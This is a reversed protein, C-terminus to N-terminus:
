PRTAAIAANRCAYNVQRSMSMRLWLPLGDALSRGGCGNQSSDPALGSLTDLHFSCMGSSMSSACMPGSGTWTRTRTGHAHRASLATHACKHMRPAHTRQSSAHTWVQGHGGFYTHSMKNQARGALSGTAYFAGGPSESLGHPYSTSLGAQDQLQM